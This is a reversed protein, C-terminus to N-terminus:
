ASLAGAIHAVETPVDNWSHVCRVTPLPNSTLEGYGFSVFVFPLEANQAAREDTDSDGILLAREPRGKAAQITELLHAKHPKRKTARDAGMVAVFRESLNLTDLVQEALSQTKNTCVALKAGSRALNAMTDLAGPFIASEDCIHHTYYQIFDPWLRDELEAEDVKTDNWSFGERIMAKAGHGVMSRIDSLPVANLGQTSLVHNLAALLDPATDVLTGDLDIAITWGDLYATM